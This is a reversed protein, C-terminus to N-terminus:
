VDMCALLFRAKDFFLLHTLTTTCYDEAVPEGLLLEMMGADSQIPNPPKTHSKPGNIQHM